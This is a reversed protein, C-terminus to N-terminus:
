LLEEEDGSLWEDKEWGAAQIVGIEEPFTWKLATYKRILKLAKRYKARGIAIQDDSAVWTKIGMGEDKSAFHWYFKDVPAFDLNNDKIWNNVMDMYFAASLDYSYNTIKSRISHADKVDGTTSKLDTLYSFDQGLRITDTKVKCNVSLLKAFFSVESVALEDDILDMAIDSDLTSNILRDAKIKEPMTIITKGPNESVFSDWAKTGRRGGKFVACTDEFKEPELIATHFFTGIDFAAISERPITKAIYKRYFLEPSKLMDKLQSSSYYHNEPSHQAHYIDDSMDDYRGPAIPKETTM